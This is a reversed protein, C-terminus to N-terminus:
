PTRFGLGLEIGELALEWKGLQVISVRYSLIIVLYRSAATGHVDIGTPQKKIGVWWWWGVTWWRRVLIESQCSVKSVSRLAHTGHEHSGVSKDSPSCDGLDVVIPLVM